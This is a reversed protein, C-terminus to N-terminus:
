LAQVQQGYARRGRSMYVSDRNEPPVAATLSACAKKRRLYGVRRIVRDMSAPRRLQVCLGSGNELPIRAQQAQRM